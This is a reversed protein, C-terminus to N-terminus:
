KKFNKNHHLFILTIVFVMTGHTTANERSSINDFIDCNLCDGQTSEPSSIFYYNDNVQQTINNDQTLIDYYHSINEIEEGQLVISDLPDETKQHISEEFWQEQKEGQANESSSIGYYTCLDYCIQTM